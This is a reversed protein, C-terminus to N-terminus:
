YQEIQEFTTLIDLDDEMFIDEFDCFEFIYIGELDKIFNVINDDLSYDTPSFRM